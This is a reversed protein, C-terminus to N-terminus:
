GAASAGPLSQGGYLNYALTANNVIGGSGSLMGDQGNSGTGLQLTGGSITTGGSYGNTAMVTLLGNGVKGLGGSGSIM